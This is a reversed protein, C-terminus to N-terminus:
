PSFSRVRHVLLGDPAASAASSPAAAAPCSGTSLVIQLAGSDDRAGFNAVLVTYNGTQVTASGKIPKAGPEVRSLFNCSRANFQDLGCAGQVVYLGVPNTAFTWDASVDLRGASTASTPVSLLTGAPM